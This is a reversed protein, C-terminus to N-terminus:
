EGPNRVVTVIVTSGQPVSTGAPPDMKVIDGTDHAHDEVEIQKINLGIASARPIGPGGGIDMNELSGWDPITVNPVPSGGGGDFDPATVGPITVVVGFINGDRFGPFTQGPQGGPLRTIS